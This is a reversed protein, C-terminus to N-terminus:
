PKRGWKLKKNLIEFYNYNKPHVIELFKNSRKVEIESPKNISLNNHGDFAVMTNNISKPSVSLNIKDNSNVIIPRHSYTHPAVPVISIVNSNPSVIPCGNSMSYATSGTPTAVIIGDSRETNILQENIFIKVEIMKLLGYNHIVIDNLAHSSIKKSDLTTVVGNILLRKDIFYKGQLIDKVKKVVEEKNVDVLFGIKM